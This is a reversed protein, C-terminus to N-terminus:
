RRTAILNANQTDWVCIVSQNSQTLSIKDFGWYVSVVRSNKPSIKLSTSRWAISDDPSGTSSVNDGPNLVLILTPLSCINYVEINFGNHYSFAMYRGDQSIDVSSAAKSSFERSGVEHLPHETIEHSYVSWKVSMKLEYVREKM